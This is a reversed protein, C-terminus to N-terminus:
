KEGSQATLMWEEFTLKQGDARKENASKRAQDLLKQEERRLGDRQAVRADNVIKNRTKKLAIINEETESLSSQIQAILQDTTGIEKSLKERHFEKEGIKSEVNELHPIANDRLVDIESLNDELKGIEEKLKVIETNAAESKIVRRLEKELSAINAVMRKEEERSFSMTQLKWEMGNIKKKLFESGGSAGNGGFRTSKVKARIERLKRLSDRRLDGGKRLEQVLSYALKKLERNEKNIESIEKKLNGRSRFRRKLQFILEGRRHFLSNLKDEISNENPEEM